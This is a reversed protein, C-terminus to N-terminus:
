AGKVVRYKCFGFDPMPLHGFDRWDQLLVAMYEPLSRFVPRVVSLVWPKALVVFIIPLDQQRAYAAAQKWRRTYLRRLEYQNKKGADVELWFLTEQGLWLGWALSDPFGPRLSPESWAAWIKVRLATKLWDPWLRAVRRHRYGAYRQERRFPAFSVGAPINWSRHAIVIGQRNVEWGAYKGVLAREVLANRELGLLLRSAYARSIGSQAAIEKASAKGLRAVTRLVTLETHAKQSFQDAEFRALPFTPPLLAQQHFPISSFDNLVPKEGVPMIANPPYTFRLRRLENLYWSGPSSVPVWIAARPRVKELRRAIERITEIRTAPPLGDQASIPYQFIDLWYSDHQIPQWILPLPKIKM